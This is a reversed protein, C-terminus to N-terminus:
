LNWISALRWIDLSKIRVSGKRAFLEIGLSDRREPYLRSALYCQGNVVVEVVSRDLFVHMALLEGPDPDVVVTCREHDVEPNLSSQEREISLRQSASQYVLRTQEQGDPSCRVKVGFESNHGPEFAALIELCDDRIDDHSFIMGESLEIDDDRWHHGRLTALEPVPELSLRGGPLPVVMIPLSMVGAWGAKESLSPSRGEKLWGWM